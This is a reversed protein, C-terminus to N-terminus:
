YYDSLCKIYGEMSGTILSFLFAMYINNNKKENPTLIIGYLLEM